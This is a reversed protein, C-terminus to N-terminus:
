NDTEPLEALTILPAADMGEADMIRTLLDINRNLEDIQTPTLQKLRQSLKQQLTTPSIQLLHAGQETLIVDNVRKDIQNPLRAVLGKSELRAIIGSVTSANLNIYSKIENASARLEAQGSLFELVLLQPISIGYSKEFKKSELNISRIIKRLKILIELYQVIHQKASINIFAHDGSTNGITILFWLVTGSHLLGSGEAVAEM